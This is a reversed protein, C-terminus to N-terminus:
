WTISNVKLLFYGHPKIGQPQNAEVLHFCGHSKAVM